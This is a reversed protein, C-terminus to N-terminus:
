VNDIHFINSCTLDWDSFDSTKRNWAWLEAAGIRRLQAPGRPWHHQPLHTRWQVASSCSTFGHSWMHFSPSFITFLQHLGYKRHKSIKGQSKAIIKCLKGRTVELRHRTASQRWSPKSGKLGKSGQASSTGRLRFETVLTQFSPVIMM